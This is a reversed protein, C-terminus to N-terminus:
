KKVKQKFVNKELAFQFLKEDISDKGSKQLGKELTKVDTKYLFYDVDDPVDEETEVIAATYVKQGITFEVVGLEM